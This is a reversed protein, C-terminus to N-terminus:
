TAVAVQRRAGLACRAPYARGRSEPDTFSPRPSVVVLVDDSTVARGAPAILRDKMDPPLSSANIDIRLEVATAEKNM